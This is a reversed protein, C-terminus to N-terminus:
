KSKKKVFLWKEITRNAGETDTFTYTGDPVADISARQQEAMGLLGEIFIIKGSLSVSTKVAGGGGGYRASGVAYTSTELRDALVGEPTVQVIEIGFSQQKAKLAKIRDEEKQQAKTTAANAEATRNAIAEERILAAETIRRQKEELIRHKTAAEPDFGGLKEQIDKPLKEFPITGAGSEHMISVGSPTVKRVTVGNYSKGDTTTLTDFKTPEKEAGNLISAILALITISIPPKM